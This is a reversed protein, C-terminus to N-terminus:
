GHGPQRRKRATITVAKREPVTAAYAKRAICFASLRFAQASMDAKAANCAACAAVTNAESDAGNRALPLVHDLTARRDAKGRDTPLFIPIGCYACRGNQHEMHRVLWNPHGLNRTRMRAIERAAQQKLSQQIRGKGPPTTKLGRAM